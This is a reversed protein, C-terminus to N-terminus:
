GGECVVRLFMGDGSGPADLSVTTMAQVRLLRQMTKDTYQEPKVGVMEEVTPPRGHQARFGSALGHLVALKEIVERPVYYPRGLDCMLDTMSVLIHYYCYTSIKVGRSLDFRDIGQPFPYPSVCLSSAQFVDVHMEDGQM